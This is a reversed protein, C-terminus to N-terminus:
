GEIDLLTLRSIKLARARSEHGHWFAHRVAKLADNRMM